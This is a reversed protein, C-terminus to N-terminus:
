ASSPMRSLLGDRPSPSTYLLCSRSQVATWELKREGITQKLGLRPRAKPEGGQGKLLDEAFAKRQVEEAPEGSKEASVPISKLVLWNRMFEDPKLGIYTAPDSASLSATSLLLALTHGCVKATLSAVHKKM